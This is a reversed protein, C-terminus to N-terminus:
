LPALIKRPRKLRGRQGYSVRRLTSPKSRRGIDWRVSQLRREVESAWTRRRDYEERSMSEYGSLTDMLAELESSLAEEYGRLEEIPVRGAGSATRKASAEGQTAVNMHRKAEFM